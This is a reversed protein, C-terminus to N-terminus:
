VSDLCAVWYQSGQFILCPVICLSALPSDGERNATTRLEKSHRQIEQLFETMTPSTPTAVEETSEDKPPITDLM